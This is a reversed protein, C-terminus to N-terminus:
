LSEEAIPKSKRQTQAARGITAGTNGQLTQTYEDFLAHIEKEGMYDATLSSLEQTLRGGGFSATHLAIHEGDRTIYADSLEAQSVLTENLREGPRMGVVQPQSGDGFKRSIVNALELMNVSKMIRSLVFAEKSEEAYRITQRILKSAEHATFMLRNMRSDTLKLLEGNSACKIWFPIVSGNSAAVNAFRACAFKTNLNYHELFMQETIKKSYGYINEPRCAKDTSIAITIPVEARICAQIVNLSGLINVEVTKSPNLEAHNVHKLAAAHIVIDPKIKLFLNILRDVDRVDAVYSTTAPFAQSLQSIYSENRSVNYFDFEQEYQKMFAMGVTGSGGTILVKRRSSDPNQEATSPSPM